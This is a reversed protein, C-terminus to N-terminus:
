PLFIELFRNATGLADSDIRTSHAARAAAQRGPMKTKETGTDLSNLADESRM